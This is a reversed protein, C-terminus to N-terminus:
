CTSSYDSSTPRLFFQSTLTRVEVAAAVEKVTPAEPRTAKEDRQLEWSLRRLHERNMRTFETDSVVKRIRFVFALADDLSPFTGKKPEGCSNTLLPM